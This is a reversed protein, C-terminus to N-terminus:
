YVFFIVFIKDIVIKKNEMVKYFYSWMIEGSKDYVVFVIEEKSKFRCYIFGKFLEIVIM